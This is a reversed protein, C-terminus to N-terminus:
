SQEANPVDPNDRAESLTRSVAIEYSVTDRRVAFIKRCGARHQWQEWHWGKTNTRMFLYDAWDPDSIQEPNNPREIFAEGLCAFESEDRTSQCFPCYLALM